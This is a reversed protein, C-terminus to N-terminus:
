CPHPHSFSLTLLSGSFHAALSTPPFCPLTTDRLGSSSFWGLLPAMQGTRALAPATAATPALVATPHHPYLGSLRPELFTTLSISVEPTFKKSFNQQLSLFFQVIAPLLCPM